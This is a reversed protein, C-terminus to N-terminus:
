VVSFYLNRYYIAVHYAMYIYIRYVITYKSIFYIDTYCTRKLFVSRIATMKSM